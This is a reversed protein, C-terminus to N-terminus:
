PQADAERRVEEILEKVTTDFEALLEGAEEISASAEIRRRLEELQEVREQLTV